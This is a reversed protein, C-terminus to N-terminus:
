KRFQDFIKRNVDRLSPYLDKYISFYEEYKKSLGKDPEYIKGSKFVSTFADKEDKYVGVGIGALLAAGLPTAEDVAPAEIQKGIVDAKNQMWFQDRVAGGVTIIKDAKISLGKELSLLMDKFQYNLGEYMARFMDRKEAFNNLGLFAGLSRNDNIPAGAGSFHPLFFVGNSGPVSSHALEELYDWDKKGTSKSLEKEEFAYNKRFWELMDASVAAALTSFTDRAVHGEVTLGADFVEKTLTPQPSSQLVMEWTGTIDMVVGPEFAGVALAACIYDHGGLVVPTKQALGTMEAAKQSVEGLVTGSPLVQPFLDIDIGALAILESSWDRKKQDLVSTCSAMSYDTAKAGCLMFNIFDEILLWKDTKELIDPHNEKMWILRYITDISFVQKGSISFIKEPGVKESWIRSVEETRPCHWSIFPYLWDGKKDIPVGDMGFGTVAVGKIKKADDIKSVAEKIASFTDNLIKEPDWFAWTPHDPDLHSIVTPRSGSAIKKGSYDYIVSKLSTSGLDIGMLYSM